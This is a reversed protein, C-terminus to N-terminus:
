INMPHHTLQNLRKILKIKQSLHLLKVKAPLLHSITVM